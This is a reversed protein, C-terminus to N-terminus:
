LQAWISVTDSCVNHGVAMVKVCRSEKLASLLLLSHPHVRRLVAEVRAHLM